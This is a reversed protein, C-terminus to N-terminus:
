GSPTETTKKNTQIAQYTNVGLNIGVNITFGTSVAGAIVYAIPVDAPIQFSMFASLAAFVTLVIASILTAWYKADFKLEGAPTQLIKACFQLVTNLVAGVILFLLVLLEIEM